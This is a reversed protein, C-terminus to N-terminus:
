FQKLFRMDSEYLQRIDDIGLTQMVIRDLGVGFAFGSYVEPDIGCNRLVQPHVMGCGYMEIFGEGKCVKCGEGGCAFCSIDLEASPETFPFHHPRFKTKVNDGFMKKIYMELTGKMDAFTIGKDIVLGEVQYFIPSHTADAADARYVKGPSIMKIPPKQNLMTRIQVPSTQTRLVINDDIYFTDQEGRAPHNKPINLMEFNYNDYEVEPGDEVTFGMSIFIEETKKLTIDLPNRHGITQKRGPMSIDIIENKLKQEKEKQKITNIGENIINEIKERVENAIKGVEPREEKSLSGMGRLIQTLEGKKGLFKVKLSELEEKSTAEKLQKAAANKIEELKEKM